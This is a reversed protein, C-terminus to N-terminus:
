TIAINTAKMEFLSRSTRGIAIVLIHSGLRIGVGFNIFAQAALSFSPFSLTSTTSPGLQSIITTNFLLPIESRQLLSKFKSSPSNVKVRTKALDPRPLSANSGGIFSDRSSLASPSTHVLPCKIRM